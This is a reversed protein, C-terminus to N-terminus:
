YTTTHRNNSGKHFRVKFKSISSSSVKAGGLKVPLFYYQLPFHDAYAHIYRNDLWQRSSRYQYHKSYASDIDM